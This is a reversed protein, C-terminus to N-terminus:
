AGEVVVCSVCREEWTWEGAEETAGRAPDTVSLLMTHEDDGDRGRQADTLTVLLYTDGRKFGGRWVFPESRAM